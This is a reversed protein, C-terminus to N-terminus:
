HVLAHYVPNNNERDYAEHQDDQGYKLKSRSPSIAPNRCLPGGVYRPLTPALLKTGSQYKLDLQVLFFDMIGDPFKPWGASDIKLPLTLNSPADHVASPVKQPVKDMGDPLLIASTTQYSSWNM